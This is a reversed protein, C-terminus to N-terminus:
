SIKKAGIIFGMIGLEVVALEPAGAMTEAAMSSLLAESGAESIGMKMM